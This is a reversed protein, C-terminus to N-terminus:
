EGGNCDYEFEKKVKGLQQRQKLRWTTTGQLLGMKKRGGGCGIKGGQYSQAGKGKERLPGVM